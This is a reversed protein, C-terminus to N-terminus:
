VTIFKSFGQSGKSYFVSNVFIQAHKRTDPWDEYLEKIQFSEGLKQRKLKYKKGKDKWIEVFFKELEEDFKGALTLADGGGLGEGTLQACFVALAHGCVGLAHEQPYGLGKRMKRPLNLYALEHPLLGWLSELASCLITEAVFVLQNRDFKRTGRYMGDM